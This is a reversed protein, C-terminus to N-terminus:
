GLHEKSFIRPSFNSTGGEEKASILSQASLSHAVANIIAGQSEYREHPLFAHHVGLLTRPSAIPNLAGHVQMGHMSHM